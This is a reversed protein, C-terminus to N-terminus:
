EFSYLADATGGTPVIAVAQPAEPSHEVPHKTTNAQTAATAIWLFDNWTVRDIEPPHLLVHGTAQQPKARLHLDGTGRYQLEFHACLSAASRFEGLASRKHRVTGPPAEVPVGHPRQVGEHKPAHSVADHARGLPGAAPLTITPFSRM